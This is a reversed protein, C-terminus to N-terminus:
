ENEKNRDIKERLEKMKKDEALAGFIISAFTGCVLAPIM